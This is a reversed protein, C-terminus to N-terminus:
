TRTVRDAGTLGRKQVKGMANRPLEAVFEVQRPRKHPSLTDAVFDCLETATASTGPRLVVWAAVREGLDDDPVPMVAAEAVAPHQELAMEVEGAGVKYGGTKILDVGKRGVLHIRDREDRWAVDATHFWGDRLAAVTAETNGLYGSFLSSSRVVVQGISDSDTARIEVGEDDLLRLEVGALPTGVCGTTRQADRRVACNILTETLGYREAIEHGTLAKVASADAGALAASGSVLLRAGQLSTALDPMSELDTRLRHYMTPVAFLMTGGNQFASMVAPASWTGLHHMTGGRRLPGLTGLILGHVHFLPLAHVVTDAGTWAWADALADLNDAIARRSLVAGKPPGTTGSTYVILAPTEDVPAARQEGPDRADLDITTTPVGRLSAPLEANHAHLVVDPSANALVHQLETVGSHPNLPVVPIGANLGAVVAAVSEVTPSCWVAVRRMGDLGAGIARATAALERYSLQDAGVRVAIRSDLDDLPPFLVV